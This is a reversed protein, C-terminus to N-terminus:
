LVAKWPDSQESAAENALAIIKPNDSQVWNNPEQDAATPPDAPADANGPQDPRIAYVTVEATNADLSKVKQTSGTVFVAAPDGGELRVRYM